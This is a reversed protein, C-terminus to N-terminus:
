VMAEKEEPLLRALTHLARSMHTKVTGLSCRMAIAVERYSLGQYYSMVLAARQQNPLEAVADRIRQEREALEAQESPDPDYSSVPERPARGDDRDDSLSVTVPRRQRKRAADITLRTAISFLWPKLCANARFRSAKEHVRLFTQQFLDEAQGRDGTMRLLYNYLADSYRSMLEGFAEADGDRHAVILSEDSKGM